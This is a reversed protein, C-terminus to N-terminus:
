HQAEVIEGEVVVGDGAVHPSSDTVPAGQRVRVRNPGFWEGAVATSVRRSAARGLADRAWWRIPPVVLAVGVVASVFGPVALLLAGLLGVLGDSVQPGPPTGGQAAARFRGWARMGERRLLLLGVVSSIVLLLVARGAGMAHAVAVFVAIEAVATLAAVVPILAFGRRM